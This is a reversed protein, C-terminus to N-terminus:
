ADLDDPDPLVQVFLHPLRQSTPDDLDCLDVRIHFRLNFAKAFERAKSTVISRKVPQDLRVWEGVEPPDALVQRAFRVALGDRRAPQPPPPMPPPTRRRVPLVDDAFSQEMAAAQAAVAAGPDGGADLTAAAAAVGADVADEWGPRLPPLAAEAPPMSGSPAGPSVPESLPKGELLEALGVTQGHDGVRRLFVDGMEDETFRDDIFIDIGLLRVLERQESQPRRKFEARLDIPREALPRIDAVPVPEDGVVINFGLCPCGEILCRWDGGVEHDIAAHGCGACPRAAEHATLGSPSPKVEVLGTEPLDSYRATHDTPLVPDPAPDPM